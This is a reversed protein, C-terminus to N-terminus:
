KRRSHYKSFHEYPINTIVTGNKLKLSACYHKIDVSELTARKGTYQGMIIRVTSGIQPVVTELYRQDLLLLDNSELMELTANNADVKKVVGNKKYYKGDGLTKHMVKVVINKYLWSPNSDPKHDVPATTTAAAVTTSNDEKKQKKASKRDEEDLLEDMNSRKRKQTDSRNGSYKDNEHEATSFVDPIDDKEDTSDEIAELKKLQFSIAPNDESVGLQQLNEETPNLEYEQMAKAQLDRQKQLMLIHRQEADLDSVEQKRRADEKRIKDEDRKIYKVYWGRETEEIEAIGESGITRVFGALSSWCTSNMHVHHKDAIYENYVRNALVKTNCYRTRLIDLMGRKFESSFKGTFKQPSQNYLAMQRQHAESQIHCKFGNADRCQKECMQCYWKTKQLGKAKIAKAIAKPSTFDKGMNTQHNKTTSKRSAEIFENFYLLVQYISIM